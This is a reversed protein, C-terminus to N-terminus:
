SPIYANSGVLNLEKVAMAVKTHASIKVWENKAIASAIDFKGKRIEFLLARVCDIGRGNNEISQLDDLNEVRQSFLQKPSININTM